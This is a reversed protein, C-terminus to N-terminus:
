RRGARTKAEENQEDDGGKPRTLDSHALVNLGAEDDALIEVLGTTVSTTGSAKDLEAAMAVLARCGSAILHALVGARLDSLPPSDAHQEIMAAPFSGGPTAPDDDPVVGVVVRFIPVISECKARVREDTDPPNPSM